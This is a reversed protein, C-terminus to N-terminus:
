AADSQPCRRFWGAVYRKRNFCSSALAASAIGGEGSICRCNSCSVPSFRRNCSSTSRNRCASNCAVGVLRGDGPKLRLLTVGRITHHVHSASTGCATM